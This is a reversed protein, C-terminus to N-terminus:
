IWILVARNLYLLSLLVKQGRVATSTLSQTETDGRTRKKWLMIAIQSTQKKKVM